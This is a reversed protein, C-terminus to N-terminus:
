NITHTCDGNLLPHNWQVYNIIQSTLGFVHFDCAPVKAVNHCELITDFHVTSEVHENGTIKAHSSIWWFCVRNKHAYLRFLWDKIEHVLPHNTYFSLLLSPSNQFDTFIVLFSSPYSVLEREWLLYFLTYSLWLYVPCAQCSYCFIVSPSCFPLVLVMNHNLPMPLFKSQFSVFNWIIHCHNFLRLNASEFSCISM